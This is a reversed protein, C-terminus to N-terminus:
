TSTKFVNQGSVSYTRLRPLQYVDLQSVPQSNFETTDYDPTFVVDLICCKGMKKWEGSLFCILIFYLCLLASFRVAQYKENGGVPGSSEVQWKELGCTGKHAAPVRPPWDIVTLNVNTELSWCPLATLLRWSTESPTRTDKMMWPKDHRNCAQCKVSLNWSNHGFWAASEKKRLKWVCQM